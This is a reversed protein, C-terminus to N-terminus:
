SCMCTCGSYLSYEFELYLSIATMRRFCGTEKVCKMMGMQKGLLLACVGSTSPCINETEPQPRVSRQSHRTCLAKYSRSSIREREREATLLYKMLVCLGMLSFSRMGYTDLSFQLLNSSRYPTRNPGLCSHAPPSFDFSVQAPSLPPGSM